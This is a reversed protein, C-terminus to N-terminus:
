RQDGFQLIGRNNLIYLSHRRQLEDKFAPGPTRGVTGPQELGM